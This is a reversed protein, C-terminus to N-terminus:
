INIKFTYNSPVLDRHFIVFFVKVQVGNTHRMVLNVSQCIQEPKISHLYRHRHEKAMDNVQRIM